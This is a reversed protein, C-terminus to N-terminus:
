NDFDQEWECRREASFQIPLAQLRQPPRLLPRRGSELANEATAALASM